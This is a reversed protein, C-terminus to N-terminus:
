PEILGESMTIFRPELGETSVMTIFRLNEERLCLLLDALTIGGESM